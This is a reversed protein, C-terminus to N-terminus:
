KYFETKRAREGVGGVRNVPLQVQCIRRKESSGSAWRFQGVNTEVAITKNECKEVALTKKNQKKQKEKEPLPVRVVMAVLVYAM